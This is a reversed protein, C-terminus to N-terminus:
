TKASRSDGCRTVNQINKNKNFYPSLTDLKQM